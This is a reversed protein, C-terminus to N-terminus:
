SGSELAANDKVGAQRDPRVTRGSMEGPTGMGTRQGNMPKHQWGNRRRTM